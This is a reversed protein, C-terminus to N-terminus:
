LFGVSDLAKRSLEKGPLHSLVWPQWWWLLSFLAVKGHEWTAQAELGATLALQM